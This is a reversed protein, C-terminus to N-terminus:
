KSNNKNEINEKEKFNNQYNNYYYPNTQEQEQYYNYYNLNKSYVDNSSYKEWQNNNFPQYQQQGSLYSSFFPGLALEYLYNTNM